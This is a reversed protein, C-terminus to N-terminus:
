RRGMSRAVAHAQQMSHALSLNSSERQGVFKPLARQYDEDTGKFGAERLDRTKIGLPQGDPGPFILAQEGSHYAFITM